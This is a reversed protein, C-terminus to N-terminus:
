RGERICKQGNNDIMLVGQATGTGDYRRETTWLSGDATIYVTEGTVRAVARDLDAQKM